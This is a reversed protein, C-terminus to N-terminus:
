GRYQLMRTMMSNHFRKLTPSIYSYYTCRSSAVSISATSLEIRSVLGISDYVLYDKLIAECVSDFNRIMREIEPLGLALGM